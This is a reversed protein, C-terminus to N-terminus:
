AFEKEVEDRSLRDLKWVAANLQAQPERAALLLQNRHDSASEGVFLDGAVQIQGLLRDLVM